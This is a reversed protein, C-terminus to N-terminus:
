IEEIHGLDAPVASVAGGFPRRSYAQSRSRDVQERRADASAPRAASSYTGPATYRTM